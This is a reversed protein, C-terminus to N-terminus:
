QIFQSQSPSSQLLSPQEHHQNSVSSGPTPLVASYPSAVHSQYSSNDHLVYLPSSSISQGVSSQSSTFSSFMELYPFESKNFHVHVTIYVRGSRDLCKYGKHLPSYGLFLCKKLIFILSIHIILNSFHIVHVDLCRLFSIIQPNIICSRFPHCM